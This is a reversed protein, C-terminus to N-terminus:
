APQRGGGYSETQRDGALLLQEQHQHEEPVWCREVVEAEARAVAAPSGDGFDVDLTYHKAALDFGIKGISGAYGPLAESTLGEADESEGNCLVVHSVTQVGKPAPRMACGALKAFSGEISVDVVNAALVAQVGSRNAIAAGCVRSDANRIVGVPHSQLVLEIDAEVLAQELTLKVHMPTPPGDANPGFVTQSLPSEELPTDWYNFLSAIDEGLYARPAVAMASRGRQKAAVALSVGASCGGLVLVDVRAVVPIQKSV